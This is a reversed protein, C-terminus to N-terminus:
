FCMKGQFNNWSAGFQLIKIYLMLTKGLSYYLHLGALYCFIDLNLLKQHGNNEM